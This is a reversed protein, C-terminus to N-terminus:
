LLSGQWSDVVSPLLKHTKFTSRKAQLTGHFQLLLLPSKM